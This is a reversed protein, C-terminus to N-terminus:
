ELRTPFVSPFAYSFSSPELWERGSGASPDLLLVCKGRTTQFLCRLKGKGNGCHSLKSVARGSCDACAPSGRRGLLAWVPRASSSLGNEKRFRSSELRGAQAAWALGSPRALGHAVRYPRAFAPVATRLKRM